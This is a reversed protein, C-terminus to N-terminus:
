SDREIDTWSRLPQDPEKWGIKNAPYSLLMTVVGLRGVEECVWKETDIFLGVEWGEALFDEIQRVKWDDFRNFADPKTMVGAWDRLMERRLWWEATDENNATFAVMRYQSHLSDYLLRAWKTPQAKRLDDEGSLVSEIPMVCIPTM